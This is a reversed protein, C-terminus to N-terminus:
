PYFRVRSKARYPSRLSLLDSDMGRSLHFQAGLTRLARAQHTGEQQTRVHSHRLPSGCLKREPALFPCKIDRGNTQRLFRSTQRVVHAKIGRVGQVAATAPRVRPERAATDRSERVIQSACPRAYRTGQAGWLNVRAESGQNEQRHHPVRIPDLLAYPAFFLCCGSGSHRM